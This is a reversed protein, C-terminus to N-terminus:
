RGGRRGTRQAATERAHASKFEQNTKHRGVGDDLEVGDVLRIVGALHVDMRHAANRQLNKGAFEDGDHARAAGAFARQHVHDARQVPRRAPMVPQIANVNGREVAVRERIHAVFFDAKYELPEVQQRPRGRAFVDLHRHKVVPLADVRVLLARAGHVREFQDAEARARIM